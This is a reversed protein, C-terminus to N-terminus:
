STGRAALWRRAEAAAVRWGDEDQEATLEGTRCLLAVARRSMGALAGLEETTLSGRKRGLAERGQAAQIVVGLATDLGEGDAEGLQGLPALYLPALSILYEQVPADLAHDGRAYGALMRVARYVETQEPDPLAPIADFSVLQMTQSVIHDLAGQAIERALGSPTIDHLRPTNAPRAM